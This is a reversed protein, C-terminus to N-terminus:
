RTILRQAEREVEEVTPDNSRIWAELERFDDESFDPRVTLISPAGPEIGAVGTWRPGGAFVGGYLIMARLRHVGSALLADYFMRHVAQWRRNKLACFHDHVVSARRHDGVFPSGILPWLVRPISAGDVVAGAPVAWEVSRNDHFVFPEVLRMRRDPGPEHVWAAVLRGEFRGVSQGAAPAAAASVGILLLFALLRSKM